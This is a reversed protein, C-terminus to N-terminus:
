RPPYTILYGFNELLLKSSGSIFAKRYLHSLDPFHSKLHKKIIGLSFCNLSIYIAHLVPNM